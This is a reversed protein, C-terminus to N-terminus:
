EPERDKQPNPSCPNEDLPEGNVIKRVRDGTKAIPLELREQRMRKFSQGGQATEEIWDRAFQGNQIERLIERMREKTGRDIIRPGRSYDGFEATNSIHKHMFGLGGQHLLDVVLKLEHVCEFYAMEPPYGADVLTDYAATCLESVGGCLVAQEGFLDTETEDKVTTKMIGVRGAGIAKAYALALPWDSENAAPGLACYCPVGSGNEYASRVRHGAGKPAVLLGRTGDLLSLQDYLFSFGHCCLLYDGPVMHRRIEQEFVWKQIEDPLMLCVMDSQQVASSISVPHFGDDVARQYGSESREM